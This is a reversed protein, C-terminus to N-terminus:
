LRTRVSIPLLAREFKVLTMLFYQQSNLSQCIASANREYVLFYAIYFLSQLNLMSLRANDRGLIKSPLKCIRPYRYETKPLLVIQLPSFLFGLHSQSQPFLFLRFQFLILVGFLYLPFLLEFFFFPFFLGFLFFHLYFVM